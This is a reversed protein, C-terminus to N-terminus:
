SLSSAVVILIAEDTPHAIAADVILPGDEGVLAFRVVEKSDEITMSPRVACFEELFM